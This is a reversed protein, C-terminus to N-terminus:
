SKEHYREKYDQWYMIAQKIDRKQSNKSGGLLLLIIHNGQEAFYVRYGCGYHIRLEFVGKGVRKYDGKHGLVLRRVRNDVQAVTITDNITSLWEKFPEKGNLTIYTRIKKM